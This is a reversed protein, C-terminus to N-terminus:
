ADRSPTGEAEPHRPNYAKSVEVRDQLRRTTGAKIGFRGARRDESTMPILHTSVISGELYRERLRASVASSCLGQKRSLQYRERYEDLTMGHTRQVHGSLSRRWEGCVHCCVREGDDLLEGLRPLTPDEQATLLTPQNRTRVKRSEYTARYATRHISACASCRKRNPYASIGVGCDLCRKAPGEPLSTLYTVALNVRGSSLGTGHLEYQAIPTQTCGIAEALALRSLGRSQRLARLETGTM